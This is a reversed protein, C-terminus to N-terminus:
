VRLSNIEKKQYESVATVAINHTKLLQTINIINQINWRLSNSSVNQLRGNSGRGDGHTPDWFLFGSETPNDSSAQYNLGKAIDASAFTNLLIRQTSAEAKNDLVYKSINNGIPQTNLGQGVNGTLLNINYGTPNTIDYITNPAQRIANFM